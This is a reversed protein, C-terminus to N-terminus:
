TSPLGADEYEVAAPHIEDLRDFLRAYAREDGESFVVFRIERLSTGRKAARVAEGLAVPAARDIPYGYIGTSISPFALSTLDLEEARAIANRYCLALKEAEGGGGGNWVPGAVHLVYRAPLRYGETTVVESTRAGNPAVRRLEDMMERGAGAHIAGDVGGGGRMATNAANVIADAEQDTISGQVLTLRLGEVIAEM